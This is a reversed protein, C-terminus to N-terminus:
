SVDGQHWQLAPHNALHPAKKAFGAPNRSLVTARVGLDLTDNARCLTELMWCGIFGTGGTIFLRAGRLSQWVPDCAAVVTDIDQQLSWSATPMSTFGGSNAATVPNLR